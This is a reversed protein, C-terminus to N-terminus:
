WERFLVTSYSQAGATTRQVVALLRVPQAQVASRVTFALAVQNTEVSARAALRQTAAANAPAAAPNMARGRQTATMVQQVSQIRRGQSRLSLIQALIADTMGPLVRLVPAPATNLNITAAARTTLYQSTRDYLDQTMGKVLLLENVERFLVNTPLALLGAQIYDDRKGGNLRRVDGVERWDLIAQALQDAKQYDGTVFGFFTKFEDETLNNINLQTGADHASVDVTISDVQVPGSFLSDVDLWPDSARLGGVNRGQPTNRLAYDLRAQLLALAGAAAAREVGREAANLGLVRRERADLSFQMAVVAIAVVLWLATIMAVGRRPRTM